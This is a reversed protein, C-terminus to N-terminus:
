ASCPKAPRLGKSPALGRAAALLDLIEKDTYIHPALRQHDRGFVTDDPVESHAHFQRLYRAFSRLLKLRHAWIV